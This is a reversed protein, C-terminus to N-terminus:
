RLLIELAATGRRHHDDELLAWGPHSRDTLPDLRRLRRRDKRDCAGALAFPDPTCALLLAADQWDRDGNRRGTITTATAKAVIAGLLSPRRVAGTLSPASVMSGVSVQVTEARNLAQTGGPVPITRAPPTTTLPARQGIGEPALIDFM